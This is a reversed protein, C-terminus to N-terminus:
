LRGDFHLQAAFGRIRRRALQDLGWRVAAADFTCWPVPRFRLGVNLSRSDYEVITAVWPRVPCETGLLFGDMVHNVEFGPETTGQHKRMWDVAWGASILVPQRHPGGIKWTVVTYAANFLLFGYMDQVGFALAPLRRSGRYVLVQVSVMGDVYFPGVDEAPGRSGPMGNGRVTVELRPIYGVNMYGSFYFDPPHERFHSFKKAPFAQYDGIVGGFSFRENPTVDAVPVYLLGTSGTLATAARSAHSALLAAAVLLWWSCM